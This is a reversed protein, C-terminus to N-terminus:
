CPATSSAAWPVTGKKDTNNTVSLTGSSAIILQGSGTITGDYWDIASGTGSVTINAAGQVTAGYMQLTGSITAASNITLTPPTNDDTDGLILTGALTLSYISATAGDLTVTDGAPITVDDESGPM